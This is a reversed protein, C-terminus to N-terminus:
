SSDGRRFNGKPKNGSSPKRRGSSGGSNRNNGQSRGRSGGQGGGRSGGQSRGRGGSRGRNFGGGKFGRGKNDRVLNVKDVEPAEVRDINISTTQLVRAFNDHDYDVLLNIVVGEEGARATRGSRHVYDPPDRPIDYNYIHTVGDVHIGRAAVDTCVLVGKLGSKFQSITNTRKNQTFGGHLGITKISNLKLNKVVLDVTTRTNCFVMVLDSEENKILHILMSLKMDRRIDYYIHKLKTPDVYQKTNIKVPNNLYKKSLEQIPVPMTASFFLTQREKPCQKMIFEIDDIFGMDLMRDAEDLVLTKVNKTNVNGREMHDRLRGPTAVVVEVKQLAEVQPNMSVGGYVTAVKLDGTLEKLSDCVQEALERTPTIILAQLGNGKVTNHLVGSGFAITKGSGTESQAFVDRGEIVLPIAKGQVETPEDFGLRKIKNLLDSSLNLDEFKM